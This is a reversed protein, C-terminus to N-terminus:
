DDSRYGFEAVTEPLIRRCSFTGNQGGTKGPKRHIEGIRRQHADGFPFAEPFHEGHVPAVEGDITDM